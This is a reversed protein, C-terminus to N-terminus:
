LLAWEREETFSRSDRFSGERRAGMAWPRCLCHQGELHSEREGDPVMRGHTVVGLASSVASISRKEGAGERLAALSAKGFVVTFRKAVALVRKVLYEGLCSNLVSLFSFVASFCM